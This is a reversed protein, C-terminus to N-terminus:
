MRIMMMSEDTTNTKITKEVDKMKKKTAADTVNIKKLTTIADRTEINKVDIMM